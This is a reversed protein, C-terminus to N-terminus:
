PVAPGVRPLLRLAEGADIGDPLLAAVDHPAFLLDPRGPAAAWTMLDGIGAPYEGALKRRRRRTKMGDLGFERGFERGFQAMTLNRTELDQLVITCAESLYLAPMLEIVGDSTEPQRSAGQSGDSFATPPEVWDRPSFRPPM